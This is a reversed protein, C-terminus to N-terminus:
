AQGTNRELTTIYDSFGLSRYFAAADVNSARTEVRITEVKQDECWQSFRDLLKTGVGHRRFEEVIYMNELKALTSMKRCLRANNLAGALYGIIRDACAAVICVMEDGEMRSKFYAAREESKIWGPDLTNDFERDCDYLLRNLELVAAMDSLKAERVKIRAFDMERGEFITDTDM